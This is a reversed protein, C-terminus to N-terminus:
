LESTHEESRSHALATRDAPDSWQGAGASRVARACENSYTTTRWTSCTPTNWASRCGPLTYRVASPARPSSSKPDTPRNSRPEWSRFLTTYPSLPPRAPPAPRLTPPAISVPLVPAHARGPPPP